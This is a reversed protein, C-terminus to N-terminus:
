CEIHDLDCEPAPGSRELGRMPWVWLNLREPHPHFIRGGALSFLDIEVTWMRGPWLPAVLLVEGEIIQNQVTHPPSPKDTPFRIVPDRALSTSICGDRTAKLSFFLPCHTNEESAFLDVRAQGYKGMNGSGGRPPAELGRSSSEGEVVPRGQYKNLRSCTNSQPVARAEQELVVSEKGPWASRLRVGGQRNIYAVVTTNDSRVLM